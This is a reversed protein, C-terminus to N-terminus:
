GGSDRGRVFELVEQIERQRPFGTAGRREYVGEAAAEELYLRAQEYGPVYLRRILELVEAKPAMEQELMSLLYMLGDPGNPGLFDELQLDTRGRGKSISAGARIARGTAMFSACGM